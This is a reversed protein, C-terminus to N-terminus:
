LTTTVRCGGASRVGSAKLKSGFVSASGPAASILLKIVTLPRLSPKEVLIETDPPVNIISPSSNLPVVTDFPWRTATTTTALSSNLLVSVALTVIPPTLASNETVVFAFGAGLNDLASLSITASIARSTVILAIPVTASLLAFSIPTGDEVGGEADKLQM